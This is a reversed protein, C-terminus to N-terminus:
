ALQMGMDLNNGPVIRETGKKVGVRVGVSLGVEEGMGRAVVILQPLGRPQTVYVTCRPSLRKRSPSAKPTVTRWSWFALQRPDDVLILVPCRSQTGLTDVRIGVFVGEVVGDRVGVFRGEVAVLEAVTGTLGVVPVKVWGEMVVVTVGEGLREVVMPRLGLTVCVGVPVDWGVDVDSGVSVSAGEKVGVVGM